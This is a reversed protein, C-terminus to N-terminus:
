PVRRAPTFPQQALSIWDNHFFPHYRPKRACFDEYDIVQKLHRDTTRRSLLHVDLDDFSLRGADRRVCLNRASGHIVIPDCGTRVGRGRLSVYRISGASKLQGYAVCAIRADFMHLVFLRGEGTLATDGPYLHTTLQLASFAAAVVYVPRSARGRLLVSGFGEPPDSLPTLRCFLFISLLGFMLLPYFFGVIGWSFIHFVVVQALSTWFIWGRRALLGWVMVLELVVVYVCAVIIWRGTFFWPPKYLGGGSIWEWDLKLTGAWFYFLVVVLRVADRKNPVLLFVGTAAFAMYHQNARLRFDLAIVFIKFITLLALGCTARGTWNRRLFGAAVLVSVAAYVVFASTLAPGSLLRLRDCEPVLPWCIAEQGAALMSAFDRSLLWGATLGHVLVLAAGYARLAPDAAIEGIQQAFYSRVREVARM